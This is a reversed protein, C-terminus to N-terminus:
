VACGGGMLHIGYTQDYTYEIRWRLMRKVWGRIKWPDLPTVDCKAEIKSVVRRQAARM